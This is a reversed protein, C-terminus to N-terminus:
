KEEWLVLHGQKRTEQVLILNQNSSGRFKLSWDKQEEMFPGDVLVDIYSLFEETEEWNPLMVKQIYDEFVYGTFCWINKRPYTERVRRLLPLLGKQNQRVMPEGGLLTLGQVYSPELAKVITEITEEEFPKGYEYDWTAENFCGKCHHPCGSVFLSVRVGPGNAIDNTKIEAYYM